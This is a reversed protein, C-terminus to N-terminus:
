SEAVAPAVSKERERLAKIEDHLEAAREFELGSGASFM